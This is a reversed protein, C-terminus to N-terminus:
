FREIAWRDRKVVLSVAEESVSIVKGVSLITSMCSKDHGLLSRICGPPVSLPTSGQLGESQVGPPVAVHRRSDGLRGCRGAVYQVIEISYYLIDISSFPPPPPTSSPLPHIPPSPSHSITIIVQPQRAVAFQRRSHVSRNRACHGVIRSHTPSIPLPPPPHCNGERDCAVRLSDVAQFYQPNRNM